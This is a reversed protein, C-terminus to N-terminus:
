GLRDDALRYHPDEGVNIEVMDKAKELVELCDPSLHRLRLRKGAQQYRTALSDISEVASHDKVRARHFEM